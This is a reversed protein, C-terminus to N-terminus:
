VGERAHPGVVEAGEGPKRKLIQDERREVTVRAEARLLAVLQAVEIALRAHLDDVVSAQDRIALRLLRENASLVDGHSVLEEGVTAVWSDLLEFPFPEFRQQPFEM